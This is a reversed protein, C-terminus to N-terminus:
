GGVLLRVSLADAGSRYVEVAYHVDGKWGNVTAIPTEAGTPLDPRPEEVRWGTARLEDEYHAVVAEPDAETTFSAQCIGWPHDTAVLEVDDFHRVENFLAREQDSCASPGASLCGSLCAAVLTLLVPPVRWGLIHRM